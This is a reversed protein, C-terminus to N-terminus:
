LKRLVVAFLEYGILCIMNLALLDWILARLPKESPGDEDLDAFLPLTIFFISGYVFSGWLMVFRPDAYSFYKALVPQSMSATEAFAMAYGLVARALLRVVTSQTRQRVWRYGIQMVAYYTAFYAVTMTYLFAPTGAIIAKVNFHYQMGFSHFFLQTGFYNQIFSFLTLLTVWRFAFRKVLPREQEVFLPWVWLPAMLGLGLAEHQWEGWHGLVSSFMIVAVVGAWVPTYALAFYETKRKATNV